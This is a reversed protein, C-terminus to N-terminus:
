EHGHILLMRELTGSLGLFANDKKAPWIWGYEDALRGNASLIGKTNDILRESAFHFVRKRIVGCHYSAIVNNAVLKALANAFDEVSMKRRHYKLLRYLDGFSRRKGQKTHLSGDLVIVTSSFNNLNITRLIDDELSVKSRELGDTLKIRPLSDLYKAVEDFSYGNSTNITVNKVNM